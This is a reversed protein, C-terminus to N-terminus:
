NGFCKFNIVAGKIIKELSCHLLAPTGVKHIILSEAFCRACTCTQSWPRPSCCLYHGIWGFLTISVISLSLSFPAMFASHFSFSDATFDGFANKSLTQFTDCWCRLCCFHFLTCSSTTFVNIIIWHSCPCNRQYYHSHKLTSTSRHTMQESLLCPTFCM